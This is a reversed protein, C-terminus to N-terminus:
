RGKILNGRGKETSTTGEAAKGRKKRQGMNLTNNFKILREPEHAIHMKNHLLWTYSEQKYRRSTIKSNIFVRKISFTGEVALYERQGM